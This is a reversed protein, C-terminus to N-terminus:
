APLLTAFALKSTIKVRKHVTKAFFAVNTAMDVM